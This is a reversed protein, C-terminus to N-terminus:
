VLVGAMCWERLLPVKADQRLSPNIHGGASPDALQFDALEKNWAQLNGVQYPQISM